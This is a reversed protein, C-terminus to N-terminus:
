SHDLAAPPQPNQRHAAENYKERDTQERYAHKPERWEADRATQKMAETVARAAVGGQDRCPRSCFKPIPVSDDIDAESCYTSWGDRWTDMRGCICCCHLLRGRADRRRQQGRESKEWDVVLAM